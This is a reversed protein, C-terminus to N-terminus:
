FPLSDDVVIEGTRADRTPGIWMLGGNPLTVMTAGEAAQPTTKPTTKAQTLVQVVEALSRDRNAIWFAAMTQQNLLPAVEALWVPDEAGWAKQKDAIITRAWTKQKETGDLKM